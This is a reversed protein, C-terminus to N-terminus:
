GKKGYRKDAASIKAPLKGGKDAAAFEKGIKQSVGDVGGKKDAAAHM